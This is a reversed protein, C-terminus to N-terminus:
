AVCDGKVCDFMKFAEDSTMGIDNMKNSAEVYMKYLKLLQNITLSEFIGFNLREKMETEYAVYDRMTTVFNEAIIEKSSSM